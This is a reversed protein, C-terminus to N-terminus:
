AAIEEVQRAYGALNLLEPGGHEIWRREAEADWHQSWQSPAGTRTNWDLPEGAYLSAGDGTQSPPINEYHLVVSKGRWGLYARYCEVFPWGWFDALAQPITVDLGDVQKRYRCYSVLVNRPDRFVTIVAFGQLDGAYQAPVHAHIFISDPLQRLRDITLGDGDKVHLRWDANVTLLGRLKRLGFRSVWAMVAHTGSKPLGNIVIM